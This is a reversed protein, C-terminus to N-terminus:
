GNSADDGEVADEVTARGEVTVDRLAGRPANPAASPATGAPVVTKSSPIGPTALSSGARSAARRLAAVAAASSPTTNKTSLPQREGSYWSRSRSCAIRLYPESSRAARHTAVGLVDAWTDPSATSM